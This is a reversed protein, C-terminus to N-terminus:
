NILNFMGSNFGSKRKSSVGSSPTSQGVLLGKVISGTRTMSQELKTFSSAEITVMPPMTIMVEADADADTPVPFDSM